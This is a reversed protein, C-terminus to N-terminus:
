GGVTRAFPQVIVLAQAIKDTVAELPLSQAAISRRLLTQANPTTKDVDPSPPAPAHLLVRSDVGELIDCSSALAFCRSYVRPQLQLVALM